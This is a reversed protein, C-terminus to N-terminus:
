PNRALEEKDIQYFKGTFPLNFNGVSLKCNKTPSQIKKQKLYITHTCKQCNTIDALSGIHQMYINMTNRQLRKQKIETLNATINSKKIRNIQTKPKKKM